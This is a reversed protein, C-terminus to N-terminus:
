PPDAPLCTSTSAARAFAKWCGRLAWPCRSWKTPVPLSTFTIDSAAAVEAPTNALRAGGELLPRAAEERLDYVVMSYGAKQINASMGGGM